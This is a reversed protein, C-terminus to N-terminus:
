YKIIGQQRVAEHKDSGDSCRIDRDATVYLVILM